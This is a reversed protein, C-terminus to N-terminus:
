LREAPFAPPPAARRKEPSARAVKPPSAPLGAGPPGASAPPPPEPADDTEPGDGKQALARARAHPRFFFFSRVEPPVPLLEPPM